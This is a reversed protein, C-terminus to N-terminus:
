RSAIRGTSAQPLTQPPMVGAESIWNAYVDYNQLFGDVDTTFFRLSLIDQRKMGARDLIAQIADLSDQIQGRLDGDHTVKLGM